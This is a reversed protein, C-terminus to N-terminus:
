NEDAEIAAAAENQVFTVRIAEVNLYQRTITVTKSTGDKLTRTVPYSVERYERGLKEWVFTNGTAETIRKGANRLSQSAAQSYSFFAETQGEGMLSRLTLEASGKVGFPEAIYGDTDFSSLLQIAM